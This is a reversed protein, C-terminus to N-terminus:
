SGRPEEFLDIIGRKTLEPLLCLAWNKMAGAGVPTRTCAFKPRISRSEWFRVLLHDLDSWGMDPDTGQVREIVHISIGSINKHESTITELAEVM